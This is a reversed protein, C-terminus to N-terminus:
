KVFLGRRIKEKFLNGETSGIENRRRWPTSTSSNPTVKPLRLHLPRPHCAVIHFVSYAAPDAPAGSDGYGRLDPAARLSHSWRDPPAMLALAGTSTRMGTGCRSRGGHKAAQKVQQEQAEEEPWTRPHALSTWRCLWCPGVCPLPPCCHNFFEFLRDASAPLLSQGM